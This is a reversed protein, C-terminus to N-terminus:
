WRRGHRGIAALKVPRETCCIIVPVPASELPLYLDLKQREHLSGYALDKITEGAGLGAACAPQVPEGIDPAQSATDRAPQQADNGPTDSSRDHRVDNPPIDLSRRVDAAGGDLASETDLEAVAVDSVDSPGGVRSDNYRMTTDAASVVADSTPSDDCGCSVTCALFLVCGLRM